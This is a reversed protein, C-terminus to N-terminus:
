YKAGCANLFPPNAGGTTSIIPQARLCSWKRTSTPSCGTSLRSISSKARNTGLADGLRRGYSNQGRSPRSNFCRFIPRFLSQNPLDFTTGNGAERTQGDTNSCTHYAAASMRPLAWSLTMGLSSGTRRSEDNLHSLSPIASLRPQPNLPTLCDGNSTPSQEDRM